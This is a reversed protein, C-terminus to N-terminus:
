PPELAKQFERATQFRDVPALRTAKGIVAELHKPVQPNLSRAPPLSFAPGSTPDYKTLLHHMTVGLAYIDSRADTQERGYQEPPAYGVTGLAATDAQKGSTFVRAIGFDILKITGDNTLMINLPKLDRFIIPPQRSHLYDLVDCLQRIWGIVTDVSLFDPSSELVEALTQGEILEMVLYHRGFASFYDTISPFNRHRLSALLQAERKFQQIAQQRESPDTFWDLLEKLALKQGFLRTDEVLYITGMGGGGLRRVIVYRDALKTGERLRELRPPLTPILPVKPPVIQPKALHHGCHLCFQAELRNARGCVPCIPGTPKLMRDTPLATGCKICFRAEFRHTQWGCTECAKKPLHFESHSQLLYGEQVLVDLSSDILERLGRELPIVQSMQSSLIDVESGGFSLHDTTWQEMLWNIIYCLAWRARDAWEVVHGRSAILRTLEPREFLVDYLRAYREMVGTSIGEHSCRYLETWMERLQGRSVLVLYKRFAPYLSKDNITGEAIAYECIQGTNWVLPLYVDVFNSMVVPQHVRKRRWWENHLQMSGVILFLVKRKEDLFDNVDFLERIAEIVALTTVGDIIVTVVPARRVLFGKRKTAITQLLEKARYVRVSFALPEPKDRGVDAAAGVTILPPVSLEIHLNYRSEHTKTKGRGPLYRRMEGELRDLKTEPDQQVNAPVRLEVCERKSNRAEQRKSQLIHEAFSSKGAADGGTILYYHEHRKRIEDLKGRHMIFLDHERESLVETTIKVGPKLKYSFM